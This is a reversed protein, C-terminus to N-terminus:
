IWTLLNVNGHKTAMWTVQILKAKPALSHLVPTHVINSVYIV